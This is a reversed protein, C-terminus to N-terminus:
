LAESDRLSVGESVWDCDCLRLPVDEADSVGLWLPVADRVWDIDCVADVVALRECDGLTVLVGLAECVPM